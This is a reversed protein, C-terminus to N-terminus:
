TETDLGSRDGRWVVGQVQRTERGDHVKACQVKRRAIKARRGAGQVRSGASQGM